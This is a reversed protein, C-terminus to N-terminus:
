SVFSGQLDSIYIFVGHRNTAQAYRGISNQFKVLSFLISMNGKILLGPWEMCYYAHIWAM